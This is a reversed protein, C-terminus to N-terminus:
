DCNTDSSANSSEFKYNHVYDGDHDGDHDSRSEINIGVNDTTLHKLDDSDSSSFTYDFQLRHRRLELACAIKTTRSLQVRPQLQTAAAVANVTLNALPQMDPKLQLIKLKKMMLENRKINALRKTEYSAEEIPL